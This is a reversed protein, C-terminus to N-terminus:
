FVSNSLHGSVFLPLPEGGEGTQTQTFLYKINNTKVVNKKFYIKNIINNKM